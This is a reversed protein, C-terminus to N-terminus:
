PMKSLPGIQISGDRCGVALSRGQPHFALATLPEVCAFSGKQEASTTNWLQVKNVRALRLWCREMRASVHELSPSRLDTSGVARDLIPDIKALSKGEPISLM